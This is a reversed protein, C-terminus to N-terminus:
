QVSETAKPQWRPDNLLAGSWSATIKWKGYADHLYDESETLKLVRLNEIIRALDTKRENLERESPEFGAPAPELTMPEMNPNKDTTDCSVTITWVSSDEDQYTFEGDYRFCRRAHAALDWAGQTVSHREWIIGEEGQDEDNGFIEDYIKM